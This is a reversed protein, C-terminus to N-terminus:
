CKNEVAGQRMADAKKNAHAHTTDSPSTESGGTSGPPNLWNKITVTIVQACCISLRLSVINITQLLTPFYETTM